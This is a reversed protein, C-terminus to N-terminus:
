EGADDAWHEVGVDVFASVTVLLAEVDEASGEDDREDDGNEHAVLDFSNVVM